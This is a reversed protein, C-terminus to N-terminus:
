LAAKLPGTWAEPFLELARTAMQAIQPDRDLQRPRLASQVEPTHWEILRMLALLRSRGNNAETVEAEGEGRAFGTRPNELVEILVPVVAPHTLHTLRKVSEHATNLDALRMARLRHLQILTLTLLEAVLPDPDDLAAELEAIADDNQAMGSRNAFEVAAKQRSAPDSGRLDYETRAREILRGVPTTPGARTQTQALKSLEEEPTDLVLLAHEVTPRLAPDSAALLENLYARLSEDGPQYLVGRARDRWLNVEEALAQQRTHLAEQEALLPEREDASVELLKRSLAKLQEGVEIFDRQISDAKRNLAEQLQRLEQGIV